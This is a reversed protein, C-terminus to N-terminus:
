SIDYVTIVVGRALPYIISWAIFDIIFLLYYFHGNYYFLPLGRGALICFGGGCPTSYLFSVIVLLLPALIYKWKGIKTSEFIYLLYILVYSIFLWFVLNIIAKIGWFSIEVVIGGCHPYFEIPFGSYCHGGMSLTNVIFFLFGFFAIIPKLIIKRKQKEINPM